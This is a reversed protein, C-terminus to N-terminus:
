EILYPVDRRVVQFTGSEGVTKAERVVEVYLDGAQTRDRNISPEVLFVEIWKKVNISQASGGNVGEAACNVVAVTLVRRDQQTESPGLGASCQPASYSYYNTTKGGKISSHDSHPGTHNTDQEWRYVDYRTIPSSVSVGAGAAWSTVDAPTLGPHNVSFYLNRDWSGDGIRGNACDGSQSVAHCIDRPLGMNSPTASVRTIPDPLYQASPLEWPDNGTAFGCNSPPPATIEAHVVDKRTNLAPSCNGTAADCDSVLGNEYIDFRTNIADTVSTNVGPKTTVQSTKLCEGDPINAGLAAELANAGSLNSELYGFNGPSWSGGSGGAVLRIGRGIYNGVNFDTEQGTEAPNCIMLPPVRCVASDLGAYAYATLDQFLAAVLGTFAYNARRTAVQVQVFKANADSTAATTKAKDQYFRITGTADCTGENSINVRVAQGDNAFLTDNRVLSSAALAARSCAGTKSDLQSAAALAAQDAANQLESDMAAMRAYDFGLGAVAVLGTLSLAVTPAVSGRTSRALGAFRRWSM